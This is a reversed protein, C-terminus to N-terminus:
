HKQMVSLFLSLEFYKCTSANNCFTFWWELYCRYTFGSSVQQMVLTFLLMLIAWDDKTQLVIERHALVWNTGRAKTLLLHWNILQVWMIRPVSLYKSGSELILYYDRDNKTVISLLGGLYSFPSLEYLILNGLISEFWIIFFLLLPSTCISGRRSLGSPM